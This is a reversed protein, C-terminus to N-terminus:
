HFDFYLFIKLFIFLYIFLKLGPQYVKIMKSRVFMKWKLDFLLNLQRKVGGEELGGAM